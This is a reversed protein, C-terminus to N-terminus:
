KAIELVAQLVHEEYIVNLKIDDYTKQSHFHYDRGTIITPVSLMCAEGLGVKAKFYGAVINCIEGLADAAAKGSGPDDPPIGLMQAALHSAAEGSCQLIMNARMAGAIGVMGTLRVPPDPAADAITVTAGVMISFVEVVTAALVGQWASQPLVSDPEISKSQTGRAQHM